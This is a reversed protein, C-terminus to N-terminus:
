YRFIQCIRWPPRFNLKVHGNDCSRNTRSHMANNIIYNRNLNNRIGVNSAPPIPRNLFRHSNVINVIIKRLADVNKLKTIFRAHSCQPRQRRRLTSYRWQINGNRKKTRNMDRKTESSARDRGSRSTRFTSQRTSTGRALCHTRKGIGILVCWNKSNVNISVWVSYMTFRSHTLPFFVRRSIQTSHHDIEDLRFLDRNHLFLFDNNNCLPKSAFKRNCHSMMVM